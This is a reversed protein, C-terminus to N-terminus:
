SFFKYILIYLFFVNSLFLIWFTRNFLRSKPSSKGPGPKMRTIVPKTKYTLSNSAYKYDFYSKM